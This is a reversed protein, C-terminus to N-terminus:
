KRFLDSHTGTRELILDDGRVCYILLWDPTLHCERRGKWGGKLPHDHYHADLREGALLKRVIAELLDDNAGQRKVRKYDRKFQSTYVLNL